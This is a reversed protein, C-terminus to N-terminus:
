PTAPADLKSPADASISGYGIYGSLDITANGSGLKLNIHSYNVYGGTITINAEGSSLNFQTASVNDYDSLNLTVAGSSLNFTSSYVSGTFSVDGSSLNFTSSYVSGTFSVDGSSLNFTSSDFAGGVTAESLNFTSGNVGSTATIHAIGAQANVTYNNFSGILDLTTTGNGLTITSAGSDGGSNTVVVDLDVGDTLTLGIVGYTSKTVSVKDFGSFEALGTLDFSGTGFLALENFGSGGALSDGQNLTLSTGTVLQDDPVAVILDIGSTLALDASMDVTLLTSFPGGPNGAADSVSAM